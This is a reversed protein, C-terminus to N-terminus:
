ALGPHLDTLSSRGQSRCPYQAQYRVRLLFDYARKAIEEEEKSILNRERPDDADAAYKRLCDMTRQSSRTSWPARKSM